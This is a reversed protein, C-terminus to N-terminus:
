LMQQLQVNQHTSCTRIYTHKDLCYLFYKMAVINIVVYTRAKPLYYACKATCYAGLLLIAVTHLSVMRAVANVGGREILTKVIDSHVTVDVEMCSSLLM